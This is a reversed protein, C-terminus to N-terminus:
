KISPLEVANHHNASQLWEDNLTPQEQEQVTPQNDNDNAQESVTVEKKIASLFRERQRHLMWIHSILAILVLCLVSLTWWVWQPMREVPKEQPQSWRSDPATEQLEIRYISTAERSQQRLTHRVPDYIRIYHDSVLLLCGCLKSAEGVIDLHTVAEGYENSADNDITLQGDKYTM